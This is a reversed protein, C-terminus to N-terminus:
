KKKSILAALSRNKQHQAFLLLKELINLGQLVSFQFYNSMKNTIFEIVPSPQQQWEPTLMRELLHFLQPLHEVVYTHAAQRSSNQFDNAQELIPAYHNFWQLICFFVEDEEALLFFGEKVPQLMVLASRSDDWDVLCADCLEAISAEWQQR